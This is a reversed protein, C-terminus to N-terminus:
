DIAVVRLEMKIGMKCDPFHLWTFKATCFCPGPSLRNVKLIEVLWLSSIIRAFCLAFVTIARGAFVFINLLKFDINDGIFKINKSFM